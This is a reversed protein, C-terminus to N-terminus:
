KRVIYLCFSFFIVNIIEFVQSCLLYVSNDVIGDFSPM